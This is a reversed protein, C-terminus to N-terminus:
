LTILDRCTLTESLEYRGGIVVFLLLGWASSLLPWTMGGWTSLYVIKLVLSKQVWPSTSSLPLACLMFIELQIDSSLGLIQTNLYHSLIDGVRRVWLPHVAASSGHGHCPLASLAARQLFIRHQAQGKMLPLDSFPRALQSTQPSCLGLLM